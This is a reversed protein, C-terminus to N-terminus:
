LDNTSLSVLACIAAEELKLIPSAKKMGLTADPVEFSSSTAMSEELNAPAIRKSNKRQNKKKKKKPTLRGTKEFKKVVYNMM